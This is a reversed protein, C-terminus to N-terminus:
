IFKVDEILCVASVPQTNVLVFALMSVILGLLCLVIKKM